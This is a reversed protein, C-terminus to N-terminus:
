NGGSLAEAEGNEKQEGEIRAIAREVAERSAADGGTSAVRLAPLASVADKGMAGLADAAASRALYRTGKLSMEYKLAETMVPVSGKAESGITRLIELSELTRMSGKETRIIEELEPIISAARPGLRKLGHMASISVRVDPDKLQEFLIAVTQTTVQPSAKASLGGLHYPAMRRILPDKNKVYPELQSLLRNADPASAVALGKVIENIQRSKSEFRWNSYFFKGLVIVALFVVVAVFGLLLRLARM